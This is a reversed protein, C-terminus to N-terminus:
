RNVFATLLPNIWISQSGPSCLYMLARPWGTHYIRSSPAQLAAVYTYGYYYSSQNRGDLAVCYGGRAKGEKMLAM